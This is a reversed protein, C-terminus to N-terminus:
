LKGAIGRRSFALYLGVFLGSLFGLVYFAGLDILTLNPFFTDILYQAGFFATFAAVLAAVLLTYRTNGEM